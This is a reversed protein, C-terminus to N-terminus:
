SIETELKTILKDVEKVVQAPLIKAIKIEQRVSKLLSLFRRLLAQKKKQWAEQPLLEERQKILATLDKKLSPADKGNEFVNKKIRQYDASDIERKNKALRLADVSEFTPASVCGAEEKYDKKLYRPEEQELFYYSKLSLAYISILHM